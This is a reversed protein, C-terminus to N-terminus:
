HAPPDGHGHVPIEVGTGLEGIARV